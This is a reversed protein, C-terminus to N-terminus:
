NFILCLGMWTAIFSCYNAWVNHQVFKFHEEENVKSCYRVMGKFPICVRM